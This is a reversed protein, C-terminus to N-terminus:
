SANAGESASSQMGHLDFMNIELSQIVDLVPAGTLNWLFCCVIVAFLILSLDYKACHFGHTGALYVLVPHSILGSFCIGLIVGPTGALWGGVAICLILIGASAASFKMQSFSDGRALIFPTLTTTLARGVQGLALLQLMWGAELYRDDYAIKIILDGILAVGVCVSIYALGLLNRVKHIRTFDYHNNFAQRYYPHLVRSSFNVSFLAVIAAWTAAVSYKGVEALDLFKGLILRDGQIAVWSITSSIVIWKGYNLLSSVASKEWSIKSFHGKYFVYSAIVEFFCAVFHGAVLAWINPYLWAWILTVALGIVQIGLDQLMQLKLDLRKDYALLAISKFGTIFTGTAICILVPALVPENYFIAFPYAVLFAILSIVASRCIQLTWATRMFKPDNVRDSNIVGERLGVDSLQGLGVMVAFVLAMVGFAEPFLLRTLILNGALRILQYGGSSFVVWFASQFAPSKFKERLVAISLNM